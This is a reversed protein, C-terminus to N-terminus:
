QIKDNTYLIMMYRIDFIDILKVFIHVYINKNVLYNIHM